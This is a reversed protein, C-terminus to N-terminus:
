RDLIKKLATRARNLRSKVTGLTLNLSKALEDYSLGQMDRLILVMRHDDPLKTIGELIERARENAIASEEASPLAPSISIVDDTLEDTVIRRKRVIDLCTNATVTCIWAKLSGDESISVNPLGKYIRIIADQSADLADETNKLYRRAIHHILKEYRLLIQEFADSYGEIREIKAAALLNADTEHMYIEREYLCVIITIKKGALPSLIM